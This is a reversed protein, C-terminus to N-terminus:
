RPIMKKEHLFLFFFTNEINKGLTKKNEPFLSNNELSISSPYKITITSGRNPILNRLIIFFLFIETLNFQIKLPTFM